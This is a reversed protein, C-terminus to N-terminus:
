INYDYQNKSSVNKKKKMNEIILISIQVYLIYIAVMLAVFMVMTGVGTDIFTRLVDIKSYFLFIFICFSIILVGIIMFLPSFSMEKQDTKDSKLM